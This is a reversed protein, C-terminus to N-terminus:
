LPRERFAVVLIIALVTFGAALWFVSGASGNDMLWGYLM